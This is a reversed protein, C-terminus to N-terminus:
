QAGILTVLIGILTVITGLLYLPAKSYSVSATKLISSRQTSSATEQKQSYTQKCPPNPSFLPLRTNTPIAWHQWHHRLNFSTVIANLEASGPLLASTARVVTLAVKHQTYYCGLALTTIINPLINCDDCYEQM